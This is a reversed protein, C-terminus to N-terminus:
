KKKRTEGIEDDCRIRKRKKRVEQVEEDESSDSIAGKKSGHTSNKLGDCWLIVNTGKKINAWVELLDEVSKITILHSGQIYGIDFSSESIEDCLQDRIVCELSFNM